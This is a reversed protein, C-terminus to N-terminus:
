RATAAGALAAGSVSRRGHGRRCRELWDSPLEGENGGRHSGERVVREPTEHEAADFREPQGSVVITIEIEQHKTAEDPM